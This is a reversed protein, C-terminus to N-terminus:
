RRVRGQRSIKVCQDSIFEEGINVELALVLDHWCVAVYKDRPALVESGHQRGLRRKGLGGGLMRSTLLGNVNFLDSIRLKFM